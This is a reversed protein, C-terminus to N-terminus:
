RTQKIEITCNPNWKITDARTADLHKTLAKLSPFASSFASCPQGEANILRYRFQPKLTSM